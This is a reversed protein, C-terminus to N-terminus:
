ETISRNAFAKETGSNVAQIVLDCKEYAEKFKEQRFMVAAEDIANIIADYEEGLLYESEAYLKKMKGNVIRRELFAQRADSLNNANLAHAMADGYCMYTVVYKSMSDLEDESADPFIKSFGNRAISQIKGTVANYAVALRYKTMVIQNAKVLLSKDASTLTM